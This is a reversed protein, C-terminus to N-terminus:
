FPRLLDSPPLLGSAFTDPSALTVVHREVPARARVEDATRYVVMNWKMFQEWPGGAVGDYDFDCDVMPAECDIARRGGAGILLNNRFVCHRAADRTWLLF